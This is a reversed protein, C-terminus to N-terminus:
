KRATQKTRAMTSSSNTIFIHTNHPHNNTSTTPPHHQQLFSPPPPRFFISIPPHRPDQQHSDQLNITALCGRLATLASELVCSFHDSLQREKRSLTRGILTSLLKSTRVSFRALGDLAPVSPRCAGAPGARSALQWSSIRSAVGAHQDLGSARARLYRLGGCGIRSEKECAVLM